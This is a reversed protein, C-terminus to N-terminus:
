NYIFFLYELLPPVYENYAFSCGNDPPCAQEIRM